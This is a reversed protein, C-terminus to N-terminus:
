NKIFIMRSKLLSRFNIVSREEEKYEGGSTIKVTIGNNKHVIITKPPNNIDIIVKQDREDIKKVDTVLLNLSHFGQTADGVVFPAYIEATDPEIVIDGKYPNRWVLM